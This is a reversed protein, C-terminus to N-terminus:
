LCPTLTCASTTSSFLLLVSCSCALLKSPSCCALLMVGGMQWYAADSCAPQRSFTTLLLQAAASCALWNDLLLALVLWCLSDMHSSCAPVCAAGLCVLRHAASHACRAQQGPTLSPMSKLRAQERLTTIRQRPTLTVDKSPCNSECFGCEICNDIIEHTPPSQKLHKLHLVPDQLWCVRHPSSSVLFWSVHRWPLCFVCPLSWACPQDSVM